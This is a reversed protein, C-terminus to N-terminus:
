AEQSHFWVTKSNLFSLKHTKQLEKLLHMCLTPLLVVERSEALSPNEKIGSRERAAQCEIVKATLRMEPPARLSETEMEVNTRWTTIPTSARVVCPHTHSEM